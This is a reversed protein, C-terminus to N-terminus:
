GFWTELTALVGAQDNGPALYGAEAKVAEPANGMAIGYGSWRLMEVDNGGDGFAAVAEPEVGWRRTLLALGAAKNVGPVVIDINQHGSSTVHAVGDLRRQLADFEGPQLGGPRDASFTFLRDAVDELSDVTTLAPCYFAMREALWASIDRGMYTGGPGSGIFETGVLERLAEIVARAAQPAFASQFLTEGRDRVDSGNDAM